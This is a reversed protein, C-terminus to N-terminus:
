VTVRGQHVRLQIAGTRVLHLVLDAVARDTSSGGGAAVTISMGGGSQGAPTVREGAQLIAMIEQGPAGPVIGGQHFRPFRFSKGGVGPVWSPIDFGKGGITNNWFGRVADFGAKFPRSIANGLGRFARGIRDPIDGVWRMVKDIIGKWFGFYLKIGDWVMKAGAVIGDWVRRIGPWLTDRIWAWTKKVPDGIVSWIATWINQFWQTKTAILVIIAILAVIAIIILVVPNLAMIVNFAAQIGAWVKTAGSVIGSWVAMAAMGLRTQALWGVTRQLAPVVVGSFGAALAEAGGALDTLGGMVDGKAISSFGSMSDTIGRFGSELDGGKQGIDDIGGGLTDFSSGADDIKGEMKDAAQGVEDFSKTLQDSDGAFTLTVQNQGAM